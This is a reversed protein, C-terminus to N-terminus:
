GFWFIFSRVPNSPDKMDFVRVGGAGGNASHTGLYAFGKHAYVDATSNKVGEKLEKLPVAAVEQLNGVNKSGELLPAVLESGALNEGKEASGGLEDHASATTGTVSFTLAGALATRIWFDSKM